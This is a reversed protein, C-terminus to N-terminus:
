IGKYSSLRLFFDVRGSKVCVFDQIPGTSVMPRYTVLLGLVEEGSTWPGYLVRNLSKPCYMCSVTDFVTTSLRQV